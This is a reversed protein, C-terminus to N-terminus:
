SHDVSRVSTIQFDRGKIFTEIQATSIQGSDFSIFYVVTHKSKRPRPKPQADTGVIKLADAEVDVSKVGFLGSLAKQLSKICAVCSSGKVTVAIKRKVTSTSDSASVVADGALARPTLSIQCLFSIILAGLIIRVILCGSM